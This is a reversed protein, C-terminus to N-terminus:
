RPPLTFSIRTGIRLSVRALIFVFSRIITYGITIYFLYQLVRLLSYLLSFVVRVAVSAPELVVEQVTKMVKREIIKTSQRFWNPPWWMSLPVPVEESLTEEIGRTITVMKGTAAQHAADLGAEIQDDIFLSLWIGPVLVIGFPIWAFVSLFATLAWRFQFIRIGANDRFAKVFFAVVIVFSALLVAIGSLPMLGLLVGVFSTILVGLGVYTVTKGTM